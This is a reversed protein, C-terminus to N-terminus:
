AWTCRCTPGSARRLAPQGRDGEAPDSDKLSVCYRTFGLSDLLECHEWASELMPTISDDPQTSKWSPRISRQRLERRRADRLRERGAVDALYSSRRRGRSRANTTTCIAPTTASRTSTRRSWNPWAITRRCTSRCTPRRDPPSNRGAGRRGKRQRRRDAGRRGGRRRLDNVQAVTADINQTQTATMSQVAIPHGAGITVSGIRVPRTPNRPLDM